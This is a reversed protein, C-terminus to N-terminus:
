KKNWKEKARITWREFTEKDIDKDVLTAGAPLSHNWLFISRLNAKKTM